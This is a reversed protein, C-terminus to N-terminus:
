SPLPPAFDSIVQRLRELPEELQGMIEIDGPVILEGSLGYLEVWDADLELAEVLKSVLTRRSEDLSPSESILTEVAKEIM